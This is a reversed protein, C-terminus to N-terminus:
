AIVGKFVESRRTEKFVVDQELRYGNLEEVNVIEVKKVKGNKKLIDIVKGEINVIKGEFQIDDKLIMDLIINLLFVIMVGAGFSFFVIIFIPRSDAISLVLNLICFVVWFVGVLLQRKIFKNYIAM